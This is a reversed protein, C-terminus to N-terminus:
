RNRFVVNVFYNRGAEPFGEVLSYNKDLVNNVGAEVGLYRIIQVSGKVNALTYANAKTGYSTSYRKSNNEISAILNVRKLFSFDVYGFFKHDPVNTFLIDPNTKNKRRIYTYNSGINLSKLLQYNAGLEAGYFLAEGANQLQFRGPQVNDVQQIIDTIESRYASGTVSLKQTLKGSYTLDYSLAVEADLDPNPIAAGMRYSYRDKITAFRTKRSVSGSLSHNSNIDWFIGLQANVASNKSSEFDSVEKTTSNFDQANRNDRINLSAGPVFTVSALKYSHELGFSFTNDVFKRQPEGANNERHVDRKGQVSFKLLNNKSFQSQLEVNGGYTYDDYYSKFAYKKSITTYTTDDYSDLENIFKDHYWRTKLKLKGSAFSSNTIVYKSLKNWKPWQWFRTTIKSDDGVYPPNGKEGRQDVIGAAFEHNKLTIGAKFNYKFDDRYANQRENTTQYKRAKFDDSLPYYNQKLQSLGAQFYFKGISSGANVNWRFGEGSFAGVRGNIEFKEAPKRSVLNIAGGMTNAGYTISSFGKSVNIEALDFTTFRGLDVYGDYPVYVPVGDIFVPVQRLDFGRVYVVSENRPGVNALTVGPLINLANSVDVRNFKEIRAASLVNTSDQIANGTVIVEGLKFVRNPSSISDTQAQLGLSVIIFLLPLLRKM